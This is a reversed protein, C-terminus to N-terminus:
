DCTINPPSIIVIANSTCANNIINELNVLLM